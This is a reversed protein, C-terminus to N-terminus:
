MFRNATEQFAAIEADEWDAARGLEAALLRAVAPSMEVAARANLFLARTRRSLVDEVTRAMEHRVAWVVEAGVYPLAPNLPEALAPDDRMLAQIAPADSGYFSLAGFKEAQPHFGHINLRTTSCERDPLKGLTAAHNVCDEAMNRYTTWKGGSISLLGSEDIHITHRRSLAATNRVDAARVLPRIGTYVSLVDARTPVKHLYKAATTLIFEIESEM